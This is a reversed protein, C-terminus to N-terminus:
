LREISKVIEDLKTLPPDCRNQRCIYVTTMQNLPMKDNELPFNKEMKWLTLLHACFHTSLAQHIKEKSSNQTDTAIVVTPASIDLYRFASMMHYFAAPAVQAIYPKAAKLVDEAQRLYGNEGTMQYLRILNEAHVANGSPEAGDYFECKRLLLADKGDTQYFAGEIEKFDRELNKTMQIAWEFYHVGCGEEFLSLVGKILFAYDELLASFKAEGNCWRHLLRGNEWLNKEIFTAAKEAAATYRPEQFAAGARALVDIALGNWGALIKEDRLPKVRKQREFLLTKRGKELIAEVEAPEMEVAKAYEELSLDIHLVSRNQFNGQPTIDYFTCFIEGDEGPLLKTVEHATWTYYGGEEGESDADEGSFFGGPEFMLDRLLYDLIEKCVKAYKINQTYKWAQLYTRALIANDYLMKEFHPITWEEDVAYRSFGGGLHDYIGGRLMMDLTLEVYFLSRSDNKLKSWNLLFELQFGLPFKPEGKLGGNIPDAMEFFKDLAKTLDTQTSLEQGTANATRAMSEVIKNAQLILEEKEPGEWLQKVQSIFEPFGIMGQAPRPPIYTAALIPKLDPTLVLNLPWGGAGSMLLQAFDMYINDVEPHEERDVKINIFTENLLKGIEPNAFSEREMVHCWHCTAYGISLFIPRDLEEAKKFAEEGWPYWDVPNKAHSLLYPSKEQGLRNM